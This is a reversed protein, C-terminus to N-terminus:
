LSLSECKSTFIVSVEIHMSDSVLKVEVRMQPRM